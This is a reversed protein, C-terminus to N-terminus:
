ALLRETERRGRMEPLLPVGHVGDHASETLWWSNLLELRFIRPTLGWYGFTAPARALESFGWRPKTAITIPQLQSAFQSEPPSESSIMATVFDTLSLTPRTLPPTPLQPSSTRILQSPPACLGPQETKCESPRLQNGVVRLAM